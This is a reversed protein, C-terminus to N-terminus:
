AYPGTQPARVVKLEMYPKSLIARNRDSLPGESNCYPVGAKDEPYMLEGEWDPYLCTPCIQCVPRIRGSPAKVTVPRDTVIPKSDTVISKDTVARRAAQRCRDSCAKADSRSAEFGKGCVSCIIQSMFGGKDTVLIDYM